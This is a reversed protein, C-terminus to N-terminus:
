RTFSLVEVKAMNTLLADSTEVVTYGCYSQRILCVTLIYDILQYSISTIIKQTLTQDIMGEM